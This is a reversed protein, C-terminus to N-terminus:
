PVAPDKSPDLRDPTVGCEPMFMPKGVGYGPPRVLAYGEGAVRTIVEPTIAEPTAAPATPGANVFIRGYRGVNDYNKSWSAWTTFLGAIEPSYPRICALMPALDALMPTAAKSFPQADELVKTIAPAARRTTRFTSVAQPVTDSLSALVPRLDKSLASLEKAGPGLDRILADLVDVSTDLRTLTTRAERVAPGFKDLNQEIGRTNDAFEDFTASAVGVLGSLDARRSSLTRTVRHTNSVFARLAPEDRVVDQAFGGIADLGPGTEDVAEGLQRPRPGFTDATNALMQRLDKRSESDFTDFVQDFETPEITQANEIIGKNPIEPGDAPGPDIDVIRTGNGITSGFRLTATAGRRLPWVDDDDIGLTVIAQGDVHEIKKIKGADLGDVRVDLGSYLSVAEDFVARVEYKQSRTGAIWWALIVALIAGVVVWPNDILFAGARRLGRQGQEEGPDIDVRPANGIAM